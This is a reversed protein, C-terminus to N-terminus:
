NTLGIRRQISATEWSTMTALVDSSWGDGYHAHKKEVDRDQPFRRHNPWQEKQGSVVRVDDNSNEHIALVASVELGNSGSSELM